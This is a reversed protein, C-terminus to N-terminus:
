LNKIFADIDNEFIDNIAKGNEDITRQM